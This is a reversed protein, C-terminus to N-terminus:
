KLDEQPNKETLLETGERLTKEFRPALERLSYMNVSRNDISKRGKTDFVCLNYPEDLFEGKRYNVIFFQQSDRDFSLIQCHTNDYETCWLPIPSDLWGNKLKLFTPMGSDFVTYRKENKNYFVGVGGSRQDGKIKAQIVDQKISARYQVRNEIFFYIGTGAALLALTISMARAQQALAACPARLIKRFGSYGLLTRRVNRSIDEGLPQSFLPVLTKNCGNVVCCGNKGCGEHVINTIHEPCTYVETINQYPLGCPKCVVGNVFLSEDVSNEEIRKELSRDKQM